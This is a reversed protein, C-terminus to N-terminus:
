GSACDGRKNCNNPCIPTSCDLDGFGLHCVCKGLECRGHGSCQNPCATTAECFKGGYGQPCVCSAVLDTVSYTANNLCSGPCVASLDLRRPEYVNYSRRTSSTLVTGGFVIIESAGAVTFRVAAAQKAPVQAAGNILAPSPAIWTNSTLELVYLDDFTVAKAADVGGFVFLLKGPMRVASHALRASPVLKPDAARATVQEWTWTVTDLAFLDAFMANGDTGGLVYIKRGVMTASHGSRPSPRAGTTSRLTWTGTVTDLTYVANSWGRANFGGFLLLSSTNYVTLTADQLPDPIDGRVNLMSWAFAAGTNELKGVWNVEENGTALLRKGGFDFVADAKADYAYAVGSSVLHNANAVTISTSANFQRLVADYKLVTNACTPPHAGEGCGGIVNVAGVRDVWAFMGARLDSPDDRHPSM